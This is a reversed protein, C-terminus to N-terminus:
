SLDVDDQATGRRFGAAMVANTFTGTTTLRIGKEVTGTVTVRHGQGATVATAAVLTSWSGDTGDTTDSSDELLMTTLSGTAISFVHFFAIGGATSQTEVIGTSSTGNSAHTDKGATVLTGWEIGAASNNGQCDVAISLSRDAGETLDYNVQKATLAACPNGRTTGRCYLVDVDTTPLPSLTPHEASTADNFWANFALNGDARAPVREAASSSIGTVDLLEKRSSIATIAGVDGSLDVGEL